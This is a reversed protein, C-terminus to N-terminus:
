PRPYGLYQGGLYGLDGFARGYAAGQALLANGATQGQQMALNSLNTATNAMLNGAQSGYNQGAATLQQATTGGIGALGALRNYQDAERQRLANYGTLARGYMDSERSRLANYGTLARGYQEQERQRNIDYGTLGRGYEQAERQRAIDFGTLARGYQEQERQRAAGYENFARGYANQFEQSGMEQGFRTLAKGTGGSLLGGRAAASRELAKLGESLRFAYGPDAQFNEATFKFAEPQQGGYEFTPQQGTYQFAAPQQGGYAFQPIQEGYQFAEPMANTRQQMQALANTGAQYYPQQRAVAEDYMRAQLALAERQADRQLEAARTSAAATAEAAEKASQGQTYGGILSGIAPLLYAFPDTAAGGPPTVGPPTGTPTSAVAPTGGPPAVPPVVPPVTPPTITPTVPPTIPTAALEAAPTGLVTTMPATSLSSPGVGIPSTGGIPPTGGVSPGFIDAPTMGAFGASPLLGPVTSAALTEPALAGYGPTGIAAELQAPTLGTAGSLTGAGSPAGGTAAATGPGFISPQGLGAGLANAGIAFAALPAMDEVFQGTMSFLDGFFGKSNEKFTGAGIVNGSTDLVEYPAGGGASTYRLIRGTLEGPAYTGQEVSGTDGTAEPFYTAGGIVMTEGNAIRQLQEPTPTSSATQEAASAAALANVGFDAGGGDVETAYSTRL